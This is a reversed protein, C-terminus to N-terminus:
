SESPRGSTGSTGLGEFWTLFRTVLEPEFNTKYGRRALIDADGDTRIEGPIEPGDVGFYAYHDSLLLRNTQTDNAVNRPNPSGDQLSHHSDLQLWLGSDSRHYINDGFQQKRSGSPEAEEGPLTSRRLLRRVDMTETVRMAYVLHGTLGNGAAGTGVVWDGVSAMRRMLPKCTALTCTGYFPNPAFGYDRAVVYSFLRM